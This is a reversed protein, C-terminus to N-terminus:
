SRYNNKESEKRKYYDWYSYGVLLAGPGFITIINTSIGYALFYLLCWLGILIIRLLIRDQYKEKKNLVSSVVMGIILTNIIQIM